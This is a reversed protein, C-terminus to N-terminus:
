GGPCCNGELRCCTPTGCGQCFAYHLDCCYEGCLLYGNECGPPKTAGGGGPETPQRAKAQCDDEGEARERAFLTNCFEVEKLAKNRERILRDRTKRAKKSLKKAPHEEFLIRLLESNNEFEEAPGTVCAQFDGYVKKFSEKQCTELTNEAADAGSPLALRLPGAVAVAGAAGVARRLATRRTSGTLAPVSGPSRLTSGPAADGRVTWRALSDLWRPGGGVDRSM